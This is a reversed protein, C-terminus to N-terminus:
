ATPVGPKPRNSTRRVRASLMLLMLVGCATIVIGQWFSSEVWRTVCMVIGVVVGVTGALLLETDLKQSGVAFLVAGLVLPIFTGIGDIRSLIISGIVVYASGAARPVLALGIPRMGIYTLGAGAV